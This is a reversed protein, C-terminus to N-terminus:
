QVNQRTIRNNNPAMTPMRTIATTAILKDIQTNLQLGFAQPNSLPSHNPITRSPSDVLLWLTLLQPNAVWWEGGVGWLGGV